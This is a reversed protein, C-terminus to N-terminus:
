DQGGGGPRAFEADDIRDVFRHETVEAELIRKGDHHVLFKSPVQVGDVERYDSYFTEETVGQKSDADLARREAKALLGTAKDFYLNIDKHGRCSVKIGVTDRGTVKVEGLPALSYAKDRLLPLLTQVQEAHLSEKEDALEEGKLEMTQGLVQVWSKDGNVVVVVPVNQGQVELQIEVKMQRPLQVVVEGTLSATVGEFEGKGKFKTRSSKLRALKEAGGTAQIAREIVGRAEDQAVVRGALSLVLCAAVSLPLVKRM